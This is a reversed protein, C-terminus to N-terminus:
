KEKKVSIRRREFDTKEFPMLSQKYNICDPWKCNLCDDICTAECILTQKRRDNRRRREYCVINSIVAMSIGMIEAIEKYTYNKSLMYMREKEEDSYRM